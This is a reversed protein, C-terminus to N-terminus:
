IEMEPKIKGKTFHQLYYPGVGGAGILTACATPLEPLQFSSSSSLEFYGGLNKQNLECYMRDIVPLCEMKGPSPAM